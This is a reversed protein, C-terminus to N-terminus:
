YTSKPPDTRTIGAVEIAPISSPDRYSQGGPVTGTVSIWTNEPLASASAAAPGTMHLRALQADAACCVIVIKALDTREGDKFTFGTVTITRGSLTDSSGAAIRMLIEPLPVSPADGPPLPPFARRPTNASASINAPAISRASLAPPVIFILLVIPLVLFWTAGHKHSHDGHGEHDHDHETHGRRVDRIIAALGLGIVIVASCALWPLLGPKVYRTFTGTVAIMAVSVGLLILLTNETDRRM